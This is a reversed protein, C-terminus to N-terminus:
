DRHALAYVEDLLAARDPLDYNEALYGDTEERPRGEIAWNLAVMKAGAVDTSRVPEAVAELAPEEEVEADTAGATGALTAGLASPAVAPEETEAVGGAEGLRATGAAVDDLERRLREAGGRLSALMDTIDRDLADIRERLGDAAEAVRAVHERADATAADRIDSASREAADIIARVRENTQAALAGGPGPRRHLADVGDAIAALHRDVAGPEYGRRALPFDRRAISQRDLEV